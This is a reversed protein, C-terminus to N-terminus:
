VPIQAQVITGHTPASQVHVEGGFALARERMGLIGFSKQNALEHTTIGKGDDQIELVLLSENQSLTIQVQSAQAHRAVNTLAEQLIRFIATARDLSLRSDDLDCRFQCQIGTRSQFDQVQWEIAAVLGLHDLIDPRLEQVIHRMKQITSDILKGTARLEEALSDRQLKASKDLLKENLLSIDIKIATLSQGLEDHLERAIRIREDERASQLHASLWRLQEATQKREDIEIQLNQNAKQLEITRAIVRQELEENLKQAESYLRANDVALAARRALEEALAVDAPGYRRRDDSSIFSIAGWIRGRAILPAIIYSKLGVELLMKLHEIDRAASSIQEDSIQFAFETKGTQLVHHVGYPAQPDPPYRRQMEQALAIKQKDIHATAVREVTGGDNLIDITCWDAIQPVALKAVAALTEQYDLSSALVAGAESLFRQTDEARKRETIDRAITSAAIAKGQNDRIISISVSVDVRTGDKRLRVTDHLPMSEGRRLHDRMERFEEQREPPYLVAVSKGIMEEATYGYLRTASPNWSLLIGDVTKSTIADESSEVIAALRSKEEEADRRETVDHFINVAFQVNGQEDRVPAANVLAWRENGTTLVRFRVLMPSPQEGELARRGPLRDLPLPRGAEDMVVFNKMVEALPTALLEQPSAYGILRAAADNAYILRGQPDQATIGDVVGQLIIAQQERSLRLADETKKREVFQGIQSGLASMMQLMAEDPPRIEQSFFELAGTFEGNLLIPVGFGSHLNEKLAIKARPFNSDQSLDAIWAASASAWIRGPLGINPAFLMKRTLEEFESVNIGPAHWVGICHLLDSNRDLDWMAGMQWGTTECIAQLIKPAAESLTNSDALARTVAYQALLRKEIAKRETIDRITGSFYPQGNRIFKGFSIELVITKGDQRLGNLEIGEWSHRETASQLQQLISALHKERQDVTVLIQFPKGLIEASSYGFIKETAPNVLTIVGAQDITIIADTAVETVTRYREESERLAQEAHIRKTIDRFVLVAGVVNGKEDRIPAATDEIPIRQGNASILLSHNHVGVVTEQRLARTLPDLIETEDKENVIRLVESVPKGLSQEVTTGTLTQAVPNMFTIQGDADTRVVADGISSLTISLLSRQQELRAEIRIRL